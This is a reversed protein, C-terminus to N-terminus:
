DIPDLLLLSLAHTPLAFRLALPTGDASVAVDHDDDLRELSGAARIADYREGQPYAPRGETVWRAYANSHTADLRYHTLRYTGPRLGTVRVEVDHSEEVDIDDCHSYVLVQVARHGDRDDRADCGSAVGCGGGCGGVTAVCGIVTQAGEGTYRQPTGKGYAEDISRELEVDPAIGGGAALREGGLRSFMRFANFVPKDIDQTSFSRTGAFCEEQPFMFAWALPSVAIGRKEGLVRIRDYAAAVYSAYYETNRFRMNANDAINGAAWTDPDAESLVVHRDGFGEAAVIDLGREVQHVLNGVSPVAKDANPRGGPFHAGKVHFTVFDLRAGTGGTCANAGERCHKLFTQLLRRGSGDDFVGTVAPGSLRAGPLVTHLADETHDYLTCYGDDGGAWYGIDPENWLEFYWTGLETEGYREKLHEALAAIFAHWKEWSKPPYTWGNAHYLDVWPLRPQDRYKPDALAEPMFGLEVFPKNGSEVIADLIMDYHTFDYVPNGDADEAYINTSGFKPSGYCNGSCFMFHTRVWYPADPLGGFRGLLRRGEPLYTYNCEDYGIFRWDHGLPGAARTADVDLRCIDNM